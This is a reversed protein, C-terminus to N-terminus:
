NVQHPMVGHPNMAMGAFQQQMQYVAANQDQAAGPAQQPAQPQAGSAAGGNPAQPANQQSAPRQHLTQPALHAAPVYYFSIPQGNAGSQGAYQVANAPPAQPASQAAGTPATAPARGYHMMQPPAVMQAHHMAPEYSLQLPFGNYPALHHHAHYQPASSQGNSASYSSNLSVNASMQHVSAASVTHQPSPAMPDDNGAGMKKKSSGSDALKVLLLKGSQNDGPFSKNNLEDIIQDCVSSDDIRAFGVGKSQGSRERMIRASSVKTQFRQHLMEILMPEDIHGPLNAFYLNTPDQERQKALQVDKDENKLERLARQADDANVYDM